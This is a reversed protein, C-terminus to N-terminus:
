CAEKLALRDIANLIRRWAEEGSIYIIPIDSRASRFAQAVEWGTLGGGLDLDTIVVYILRQNRLYGLAKAADTVTLVEYGAASLTEVLEPRPLAEDEVVLLAIKSRDAATSM